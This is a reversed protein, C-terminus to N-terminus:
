RSCSRACTKSSPTAATCPGATCCARASWSTQRCQCSLCLTLVQAVQKRHKQHTSACKIYSKGSPTGDPADNTVERTQGLRVQVITRHERHHEAAWIERPAMPGELVLALMGTQPALSFRPWSAEAAALPSAWLQRLTAHRPNIEFMAVGGDKHGLALLEEPGAWDLWTFSAPQADTINWAQLGAPSISSRVQEPVEDDDEDFGGGGSAKVVFVDGGVYGRDSLVSSLVAIKDGAPSWTPLCIQRYPGHWQWLTSMSARAAASPEGPDRSADFRVLRAYYWSSEEPSDSVVAGVTASDPAWSFEWLQTASPSVCHADVTRASLPQEETPGPLEICHLRVLESDM